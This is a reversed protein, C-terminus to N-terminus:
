IGREIEISTSTSDQPINQPITTTSSTTTSEISQSELTRLDEIWNNQSDTFGNETNEIFSNSSDFLDSVSKTEEQEINKNENKESESSRMGFNTLFISIIWVLIVAGTIISSFLLAYRKRAEKSKGRLNELYEIFM